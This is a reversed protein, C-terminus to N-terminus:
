YSLEVQQTFSCDILDKSVQIWYCNTCNENNSSQIIMYCNKSDATYNLYHSNVSRMAVLAPKPVKDWLERFQELFSCNFDYEMAYKEAPFDDSWWCDYCWVPYPKNASFMSIAEKKCKDCIRRYFFRENRFSLRLQARCEPCWTPPLVDMKEYFGFDDPEIVFSSKCNQCTINQSKYEM